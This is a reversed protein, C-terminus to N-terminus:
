GPARNVSRLHTALLDSTAPRLRMEFGASTAWDNIGSQGSDVLSNTVSFTLFGRALFLSNSVVMDQASIDVDSNGQQRAGFDNTFINTVVGFFNTIMRNTIIFFSNTFINTFITVPSGMM